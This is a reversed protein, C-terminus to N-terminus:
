RVVTECLSSPTNPLKVHTRSPEFNGFRKASSCWLLLFFPCYPSYVHTQSPEFRGKREISWEVAWELAVRSDLSDDGRGPTDLQVKILLRQGGMGHM